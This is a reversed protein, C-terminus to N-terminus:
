GLGKGNMEACSLNSPIGCKEQITNPNSLRILVDEQSPVHEFTYGKSNWGDPDNLYVNILFEVQSTNYKQKVNEDILVRFTYHRKM